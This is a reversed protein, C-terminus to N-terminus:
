FPEAAMGEELQYSATCSVTQAHQQEVQQVRVLMFVVKQM